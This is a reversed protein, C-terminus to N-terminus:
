TVLKTFLPMIELLAPENMNCDNAVVRVLPESVAPPLTVMVLPLKSALLTKMWAPLDSVSDTVFESVSLPGPGALVLMQVSPVLETPLPNLRGKLGAVPSRRPVVIVLMAGALLFTTLV